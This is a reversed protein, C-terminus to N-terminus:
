WKEDIAAEKLTKETGPQKMSRCRWSWLAPKAALAEMDM